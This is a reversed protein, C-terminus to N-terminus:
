RLDSEERKPSDDDESKAIQKIKDDAVELGKILWTPVEVDMQVLNELVSRVENIIFTCLTFWGIFVTFGLDIGIVIGIDKFGSAAFFAIAIVVWYGVKKVIGRFGKVSNEKHAIRAKLIGTIYDVVNLVAFAVFLYWFEGLLASLLTVTAAWLLNIKDLVKEMKLM